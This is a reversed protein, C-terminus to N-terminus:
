VDGTIKDAQITGASQTLKEAKIGADGTVTVNVGDATLELDTADLKAATLDGLALAGNNGVTVDGVGGGDTRLTVIENASSGLSYDKAAGGQLEVTTATITAGAAQEAGGQLTLTSANIAGADQDLLGTVTVAEGAGVTADAGQQTLTGDIM